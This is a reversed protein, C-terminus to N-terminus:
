ARLASPASDARPTRPRRTGSSTGSRRVQVRQPPRPSTQVSHHAAHPPAALTEADCQSAPQPHRGAHALARAEPEAHRRRARRVVTTSTRTLMRHRPQVPRHRIGCRRRLPMADGDGTPTAARTPRSPRAAPPRSARHESSPAAAIPQVVSPSSIAAPTVAAANTTQATSSNAAPPAFAHAPLAMFGADAPRADRWARRQGHGVQEDQGEAGREADVGEPDQQVVLRPLRELLRRGARPRAHHRIPPGDRCRRCLRVM